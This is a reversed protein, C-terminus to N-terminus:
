DHHRRDPLRRAYELLAMLTGGVVAVKSSSADRRVRGERASKCACLALALGVLICFSGIM